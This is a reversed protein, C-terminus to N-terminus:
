HFSALTMILLVAVLPLGMQKFWVTQTAHKGLRMM